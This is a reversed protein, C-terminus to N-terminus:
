KRSEYVIMTFFQVRCPVTTKASQQEGEGEGEGEREGKYIFESKWAIGFLSAAM